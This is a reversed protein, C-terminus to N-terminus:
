LYIVKVILAGILGLLIALLTVALEDEEKFNLM